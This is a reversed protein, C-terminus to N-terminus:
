YINWRRFVISMLERELIENCVENTQLQIDCPIPMYEDGIKKVQQYIQQLISKTGCLDISPLERQHHNYCCCIEQGYDSRQQIQQEFKRLKDELKLSSTSVRYSAACLRRLSFRM